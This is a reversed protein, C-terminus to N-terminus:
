RVGSSCTSAKPDKDIGWSGCHSVWIKWFGFFNSKELNKLKQAKKRCFFKAETNKGLIQLM